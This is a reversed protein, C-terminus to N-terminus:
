VDKRTEPVPTNKIDSEEPQAVDSKNFSKEKAKNTGVKM